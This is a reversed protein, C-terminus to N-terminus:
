QSKCYFKVHCTNFGCTFSNEENALQSLRKRLLWIVFIALNSIQTIVFKSTLLSMASSNSSAIRFLMTMKQNLYWLSMAVMRKSISTSDTLLSTALLPLLNKQMYRCISLSKFSKMKLHPLLFSWNLWLWELLWRGVLVSKPCNITRLLTASIQWKKQRLSHSNGQVSFSYGAWAIRAFRYVTRATWQFNRVNGDALRAYRKTTEILWTNLFVNCLYVFNKLCGLNKNKM